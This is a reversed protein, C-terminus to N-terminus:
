MASWPKWRSTNTVSAATRPVVSRMRTPGPTVLGNLRERGPKNAAARENFAMPQSRTNMPRPMPPERTSLGRCMTLCRASAESSAAMMAHWPQLTGTWTAPRPGLTSAIAPRRASSIMTPPSPRVRVMAASPISSRSSPRRAGILQLTKMAGVSAVLSAIRWRM